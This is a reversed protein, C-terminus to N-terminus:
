QLSEVVFAELGQRRDPTSQAYLTCKDDLDLGASYVRVGGVSWLDSLM